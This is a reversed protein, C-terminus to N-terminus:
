DFFPRHRVRPWEAGSCHPWGDITEHMGCSPRNVLDTPYGTQVTSPSLNRADCPLLAAGTGVSVTVLRVILSSLIRTRNRM